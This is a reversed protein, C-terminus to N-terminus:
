RFDEIMNRHSFQAIEINVGKLICTTKTHYSNRLRLTRRENRCDVIWCKDARGGDEVRMSLMKM